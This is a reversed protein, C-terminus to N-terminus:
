RVYDPNRGYGHGQELGGEEAIARSYGSQVGENGTTFVMPQQPPPPAYAPPGSAVRYAGVYVAAWFAVCYFFSELFSAAENKAVYTKYAPSGYYLRSNVYMFMNDVYSGMNTLTLGLASLLLATTSTTLATSRLGGPAQSLTKGMTGAALVMGAAALVYYTTWLGRMPMLLLEPSASYYSGSVDNYIYHNYATSLSLAALLVLIVLVAWLKQSKLLAPQMLGLDKQLKHTLSTLIAALLLYEALSALWSALLPAQYLRDYRFIDCEELPIYVLRIIYAFWAFVISIMLLAAGAVHLGQKKARGIRSSGVFLLVFTAIFFIAAFAIDIRSADTEFAYESCSPLSYGSRYRAM